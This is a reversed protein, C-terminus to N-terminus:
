AHKKSNTKEEKPTIAEQLIKACELCADHDVKSMSARTSAIYLNNLAQEATIKTKDM